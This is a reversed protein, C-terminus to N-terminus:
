ATEPSRLWKSKTALPMAANLNSPTAQQSIERGTLQIYHAQILRARWRNVPAQISCVCRCSNTQYIIPVINTKTSVSWSFQSSQAKHRFSSLSKRNAQYSPWLLFVQIRYSSTRTGRSDVRQTTQARISELSAWRTWQCPTIYHKMETTWTIPNGNKTMTIKEITNKRM